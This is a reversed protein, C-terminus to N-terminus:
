FHKNGSISKANVLFKYVKSVRFTDCIARVNVVSISYVIPGSVFALFIPDLVTVAYLVFLIM